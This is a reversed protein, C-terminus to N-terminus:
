HLETLIYTILYYGICVDCRSILVLRVTVNKFKSSIESVKIVMEWFNVEYKLSLKPKLM